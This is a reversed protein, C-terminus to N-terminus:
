SINVCEIKVPADLIQELLICVLCLASPPPFSAIGPLTKNGFCNYQNLLFISGKLM